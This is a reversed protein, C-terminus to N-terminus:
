WILFDFLQIIIVLSNFIARRYLLKHAGYMCEYDIMNSKKFTLPSIAIWQDGWICELVSPKWTWWVHTNM